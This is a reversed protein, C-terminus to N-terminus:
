WLSSNSELFIRGALGPAWGTRLLAATFAKPEWERLHPERQLAQAPERHFSGRQHLEGAPCLGAGGGPRQSDPGVGDYGAGRREGGGPSSSAPM